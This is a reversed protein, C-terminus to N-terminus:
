KDINIICAENVFINASNFLDFKVNEKGIFRGPKTSFLTVERSFLMKNFRQYRQKEFSEFKPM